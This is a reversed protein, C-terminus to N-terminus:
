TEKRDQLSLSTMMDTINKSNDINGIQRHLEKARDTGIVPSVLAFFKRDLKYQQAVLDTMPVSSDNEEVISTGDILEVRMRAVPVPVDHCLIVTVRAMLNKAVEANLNAESIQTPDGTAIGLLAFAVAARLSFKAEFANNPDQINCIDDCHANVEVSVSHIADVRGGIRSRAKLACEIASHTEYCTAHYKFLTLQLHFAADAEKSFEPSLSFDSVSRPAELGYQLNNGGGHTAPFGLRHDLVDKTSDFGQQVLLASLVGASAANGAQLPKCSTGFVAKLGAARTAVVGFTSQIQELNFKLLKATAAAAGFSGITATAHFGMTYHTPAMAIGLRCSVEVGAVFAELLERGSSGIDEAVALAAALVPASAHGPIAFHVDDYDLAHSCLGNMLAASVSPLRLAHGITTCKAAGGQASLVRAMSHVFDENSGALAVGVWDMLAQRAVTKVDPPLSGYSIEQTIAALAPTFASNM